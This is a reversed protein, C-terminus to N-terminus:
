VEMTIIKQKERVCLILISHALVELSAVDEIEVQNDQSQKIIFLGNDINKFVTISDLTNQIIGVAQNHNYRAM